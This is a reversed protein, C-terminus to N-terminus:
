LGLSLGFRVTVDTSVVNPAQDIGITADTLLKLDHGFLLVAAGATVEHRATNGGLPMVMGYGLVPLLADALTYSGKLHVGLHSDGGSGDLPGSELSVGGGAWLGYAKLAFDLEAAALGANDATPSDLAVSTAVAFRLPGGELDGESYGDIDNLNVGVRGVFAPHFLRPMAEGTGNFVGVAYEIGPSRTFHNHLMVGIDRSTFGRNTPLAREFTLNRTSSTLYDRSFPRKFRGAQLVALPALEYAVFADHLAPQGRDWRGEFQFRFDKTFVHGELGFRARRVLFGAETERGGGLDQEIFLLGQFHGLPAIGFRGDETEFAFANGVRPLPPREATAESAPAEAAGARSAADKGQADEAHALSPLSLLGVLVFVSSLSRPM